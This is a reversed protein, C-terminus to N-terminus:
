NYKKIKIEPKAKISEDIEIPSLNEIKRIGIGHVSLNGAIAYKKVVMGVAEINDGVSITEELPMSRFVVLAGSGDFIQYKPRGMFKGKVSQVVGEVRVAKGQMNLNINKIKMPKAEAEYEPLLKIYQGGLSYSSVAPIILLCLCLPLGWYLYSFDNTLFFSWVFLMVFFVFVILVAPSLHIKVGKIKM